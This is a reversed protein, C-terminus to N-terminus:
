RKLTTLKEDVFEKNTPTLSDLLSDIKRRIEGLRTQLYHGANQPFLFHRVRGTIKVVPGAQRRARSSYAMLSVVVLCHGGSSVQSSGRTASSRGTIRSAM